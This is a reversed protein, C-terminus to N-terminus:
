SKSYQIANQQVVITKGDTLILSGNHGKAVYHHRIQFCGTYKDPTLGCCNYVGNAVPGYHFRCFPKDIEGESFQRRCLVCFKVNFAQDEQLCAESYVKSFTQAGCTTTPKNRPGTPFSIELVSPLKLAYKTQERATRCIRTSKQRIMTKARNIMEIDSQAKLERLQINLANVDIELTEVKQAIGHKEKELKNAYKQMAEHKEKLVQIHKLTEEHNEEGALEMEQKLQRLQNQCEHWM